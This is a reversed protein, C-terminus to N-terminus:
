RQVFDRAYDSRREKVTDAVAANTQTIEMGSQIKILAYWVNLYKATRYATEAGVCKKM